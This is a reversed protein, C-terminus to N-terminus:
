RFVGRRYLDFFFSWAHVLPARRVREPILIEEGSHRALKWAIYDLGGEFTFLAKVLRLVSLMKGLVRRASWALCGLRRRRRPIHSQYRWEGREEYVRLGTDPDEAFARTLDTYFPAAARVLEAARGGRETRLETGYSHALAGEWLAALSGAQPLVPLTNALLTRGAQQLCAQVARRSQEDRSHLIRTPQAFRGWFYSEFRRASCTRRLDRLSLLAVKARLTRGGSALETYFVNPPLLRNGLALLPQGRYAARYSDCILYLDLLGDYLDGSRLCSGYLLTCCVAGHHRRHLQALLAALHQETNV